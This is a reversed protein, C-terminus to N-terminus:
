KGPRSRVPRNPYGVQATRKDDPVDPIAAWGSAPSAPGYWYGGKADKPKTLWEGRWERGASDDGSLGPRQEVEIGEPVVAVMRLSTGGEIHSDWEGFTAVILAGDVVKVACGMNKRVDRISIGEPPHGGFAMTKKM